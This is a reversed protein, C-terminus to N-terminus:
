SAIGVAINLCFCADAEAFRMAFDHCELQLHAAGASALIALLVISSRSAALDATM